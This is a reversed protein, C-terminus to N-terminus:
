KKDDSKVSTKTDNKIEGDKHQQKLNLIDIIKKQEQQVRKLECNINAGYDVSLLNYELIGSITSTDSINIKEATANGKFIGKINLIKCKINGNVVGNERITISNAGVDGNVTGEIEICHGDTINGTVIFGKAILSPIEKGNILTM